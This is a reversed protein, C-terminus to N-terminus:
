LRLFSAEDVEFQVQILEKGVITALSTKDAEVLNGPDLLRRGIRGDIPSTVNCFSLNLQAHQVGAKAAEVAARTEDRDGAAKDVNEGAAAGSKFLGELRAVDAMLRNLRAEAQVLTARGRDMEAQYPRADIKFLLDGRRVNDGDKFHVAELYGTVRARLEIT